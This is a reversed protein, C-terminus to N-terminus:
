RLLDNGGSDVDMRSSAEEVSREEDKLERERRNPSGAYKMDVDMDDGPGDDASVSDRRAGTVEDLKQKKKPPQNKEDKEHDASDTVTSAHNRTNAESEKPHEDEEKKGDDLRAGEKEGRLFEGRKKAMREEHERKQKDLNAMDRKAKAEAEDCRAEAEIREKMMAPYDEQMKNFLEVLEEPAMARMEDESPWESRVADYNDIDEIRAGLDEQLLTQAKKTSVSAPLAQILDKGLFRLTSADFVHGAATAADHLKKIDAEMPEPDTASGQQLLDRLVFDTLPAWKGPPLKTGDPMAYIDAVGNQAGPAVTPSAVDISGNVASGNGVLEGNASARTDDVLEMVSLKTKGPGKRAKGRAQGKGSGRSSGRARRAM